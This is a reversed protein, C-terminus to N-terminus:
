NALESIFDELSAKKLNTIRYKESITPDAIFISQEKTSWKRKPLILFYTNKHYKIQNMVKTRCDKCAFLKEVRMVIHADNSKEMAEMDSIFDEYLMTDAKSTSISEDIYNIARIGYLNLKKKKILQEHYYKNYFIKTFSDIEKLYFPKGCCPCFYLNYNICYSCINYGNPLKILKEKTNVDDCYDCTFKEDLCDECIVNDINCFRDNYDNSDLDENFRISPKGCCLCKSKGSTSIIKTHQVKNRYCWYKTNPDNLMDNYMGATDWIINHKFPKDKESKAWMKQNYIKNLSNVHIMDQYLEPGFKYDWNLNKKALEKIHNLITITMEKSVYPYPKGGMIIDKTIYFLQRWTKNNWEGGEFNFPKSKNNLLYCCLTNNSNMMEVTGVHYCGNSMWNMCSSWNSNNDSMTIYDMPHISICLKGKITKESLIIAYQKKFEEFAKKDFDFENDFYEIIKTLARLPKAGPQIQLIKKAGPSKYKIGNTIKEDVFYTHELIINRLFNKQEDNFRDTEKVIDQFFKLYNNIFKSQLFLLSIESLLLQRTKSYEYPFSQIFSNGLLKYLRQNSHSWDELWKDIGIFEEEICGYKTIYAKLIEKDASPLVNILNIYKSM